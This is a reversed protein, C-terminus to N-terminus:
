GATFTFTAQEAKVKAKVQAPTYMAESPGVLFALSYSATTAHRTIDTASAAAAGVLAVTAAAAGLVLRM